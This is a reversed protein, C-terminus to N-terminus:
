SSILRKLADIAMPRTPAETSARGIGAAAAAREIAIVRPHRVDRAGFFVASLDVAEMASSVNERALALSGVMLTVFGIVPYDHSQVALEVADRLLEEARGHDGQLIRVGAILAAKQARLQMPERPWADALADLEALRREAADVDGVEIELGLSMLQTQLRVRPNEAAIAGAILAEVRERAEDIRGLRILLQIALGQQQALDTSSTVRRLNETAQESLALAENLDGNLAMWESRMQQALALGWLDGIVTFQQVAIESSSGLDVSDGRNHAIAARAVHLAATPWPDLGLDEGFPLRVQTMWDPSNGVAVFAALARPLVQVLDHSGAPATIEAIPALLAMGSAFEFDPDGHDDVNDSLQAIVPGIMGLIRAADGEVDATLPIVQPYWTQADSQRERIIWYWTSAVVLRVALDPLPVDVAFRLAASINDAESDFWDIAEHIRPGRLTLDFEEARETQHRAQLERAERLEGRETLREIGYERITELARYRGRDRQLLSRDVLSDFVAPGPMGLARSLTGAEAVSVGAPFVALRALASREDDTLLSWSWDIMARLTQHRPLATRYGGTLLTFRDELGTVIEALTMTRCKAAALEIALPLNDLRACITSATELDAHELAAGRAASARQSFLELGSERPLSGVAVFSEGPIVLPERSTALVRLQPLSGLLDSVIGAVEDIVHECNDLVLLVDRASLAAHLKDRVGVADSSASDVTRIERGTAGLIAAQVEGHGVPALEVLIASRQGLAAEIALRTKGAGGTGVITVLRSNSLQATIQELESERGILGTLPRPIASAIPAAAAGGLDLAKAKDARLDREFWDFHDSPLWPEGRWLGIAESALARRADGDAAVAALVLDQFRLADVDDRRVVLRYGGATSEIAGTPLQSRLRSIVSQLAARENEPADLGWVDEVISRYSVATDADIALRFFVALQMAGTVSIPAGAHEVHLGGFLGIRV